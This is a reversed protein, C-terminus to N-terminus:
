VAERPTESSPCAHLAQAKPIPYRIPPLIPLYNNFDRKEGFAEECGVLFFFFFLFFPLLGALIAKTKLLVNFSLEEKNKIRSSSQASKRPEWHHPFAFVVLHHMAPTQVPFTNRRPFPIERFLNSDQVATSFGPLKVILRSFGGSQGKGKDRVSILKTKQTVIILVALLSLIGFASGSNDNNLLDSLGQKGLSICPDTIGKSIIMLSPDTEM